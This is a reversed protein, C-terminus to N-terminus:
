ERIEASIQGSALPERWFHAGIKKDRLNRLHRLNKRMSQKLGVSKVSKCLNKEDIIKTGCIERIGVSKKM